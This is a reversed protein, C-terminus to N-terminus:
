QQLQTFSAGDWYWYFACAQTSQCSALNGGTVVAQNGNSLPVLSASTGMLQEPQGSRAFTRSLFVDVSCQSAGCVGPRSNDNDCTIDNYDLVIDLVGDGDINAGRLAQAGLRYFDSCNSAAFNEAARRLDVAGGQPVSHWTTACHAQAQALSTALGNVPLDWAQGNGVQLVLRAAGPLATFMSDSVGVFTEWGGGMENWGVRPLRYGTQGVFLTLDDRYQPGSPVLSEDFGILFQGTPAITSEFWISDIVSGREPTRAHCTIRMGLGPYSVDAAIYAADRSLNAQWGQAVGQSSFAAWLMFASMFRMANVWSAASSIWGTKM